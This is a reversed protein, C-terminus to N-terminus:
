PGALQRTPPRGAVFPDPGESLCEPRGHIIELAHVIPEAEIIGSNATVTGGHPQDVDAQYYGSVVGALHFRETDKAAPRLVVPGGSFGGGILGDLLLLPFGDPRSLLGAVSTKKILVVRAGIAPAFGVVYADQGIVIGECGVACSLAPAIEADLAFVAIDAAPRPRPLKALDLTIARHARRRLTVTVEQPGPVLHDATMLYPRGDVETIFATGSMGSPHCELSLVRQYVDAPTMVGAQSACM